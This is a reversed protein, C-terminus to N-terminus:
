ESSDSENNIHEEMQNRIDELIDLEDDSMQYSIKAKNNNNDNVTKITFYAVTAVSTVVLVILMMRNLKNIITRLAEMITDTKIEIIGSCSGINEASEKAHEKLAQKLDDVPLSKIQGVLELQQLILKQTSEENRTSSEKLTDFLKILITINTDQM